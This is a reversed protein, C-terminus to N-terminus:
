WSPLTNGQPSEPKRQFKFRVRHPLNYRTGDREQDDLVYGGIVATQGRTRYSASFQPLRRM